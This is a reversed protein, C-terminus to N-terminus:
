YEGKLLLVGNSLYMEFRGQPFDTFPFRATYEARHNGEADIIRGDEDTDYAIQLIGEMTKSVELRVLWFSDFFKPSKIAAINIEQLLWFAEAKEAMTRAGDTFLIPRRFFPLKYYHDTCTYGNLEAELLEAPTVEQAPEPTKRTDTTDITNKM